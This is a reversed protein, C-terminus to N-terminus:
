TSRMTQPPTRTWSTYTATPIAREDRASSPTRDGLPSWAPQTDRVDKVDSFNNTLQTLGSGDANMVWIELDTTDDTRSEGKAFSIQSGDPSSTPEEEAVSTNTLQRRGSGDANMVSIEKSTASSSQFVIRSGDPSWVAQSDGQSTGPIKTATGGPTITYLGPGASRNSSFVIEGNTGPFAAEASRTAVVLALLSAALAAVMIALAFVLARARGAWMVKSFVVRPL